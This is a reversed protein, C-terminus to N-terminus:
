PILIRKLAAFQRKSIDHLMGAVVTADVISVYPRKPLTGVHFADEEVELFIAKVTPVAAQKAM